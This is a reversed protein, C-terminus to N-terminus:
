LGYHLLHLRAFLWFNYNKSHMYKVVCNDFFCLFFKVQKTRNFYTLTKGACLCKESTKTDGLPFNDAGFHYSKVVFDSTGSFLSLLTNIGQKQAALFSIRVIVSVNWNLNDRIYLGPSSGCHFDWMQVLFFRCKRFSSTNNVDTLERIHAFRGGFPGNHALFVGFPSWFSALHFQLLLM